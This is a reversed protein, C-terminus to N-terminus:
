YFLFTQISLIPLHLSIFTLYCCIGTYEWSFMYRGALRSTYISVCVCVCM